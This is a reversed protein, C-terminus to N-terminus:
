KSKADLEARLSRIVESAKEVLKMVEQHEKYLAIYKTALENFNTMVENNRFLLEDYKRELSVNQSLLNFREDSRMKM